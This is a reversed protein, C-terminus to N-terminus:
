RPFLKSVFQCKLFDVFKVWCQGRASSVNSSGLYPIESVAVDAEIDNQLLLKEVALKRREKEPHPGIIVRKIPLRKGSPGTRGEFLNIYPVAAGNRSFYRVPKQPPLPRGRQKAIQVVKLTTPIVVIRYEDEEAFGFHKYRCACAVFANYTDKLDEANLTRLTKAWNSQIADIHTKFEDYIEQDTESNYVVHGRFMASYAWNGKEEELLEHLQKTEFIIACGGEAGYGRWQSLLGHNATLEDSKEVTCFSVIYPEAIPPENEVGRFTVDYMIEALKEAEERSPIDANSDGKLLDQKLVPMLDSFKGEFVPQLIDPLRDRFREIEEADNLYKYHTAWLTQSEVIGKLGNLGTYHYLEDPNPKPMEFLTLVELFWQLV